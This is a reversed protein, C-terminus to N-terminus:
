PKDELDKKLTDFLERTKRQTEGEDGTTEIDYDGLKVKERIDMQSQIRAAADERSMGDREMLRRLQEEPPCHVVVVRDFRRQTGTEFLLAADTVVIRDEGLLRIERHLREEEQIVLPHMIGNLAWRERPDAFVRAALARRQIRGRDDLIERGFQNVVPGYGAGGPELLKHAIEDADLIIAGFRGLDRTVVSKGCAIGGTLGVSLIRAIV